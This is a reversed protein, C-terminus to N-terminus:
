QMESYSLGDLKEEFFGVVSSPGSSDQDLSLNTKLLFSFHPQSLRLRM